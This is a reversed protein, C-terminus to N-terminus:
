EDPMIELEVGPQPSFRTTLLKRTDPNILYTFALPGLDGEVAHAMTGGVDELAGVTLIVEGVNDPAQAFFTPVRYVAGEVLPVSQAIEVIWAGDFVPADTLLTVATPDGQMPTVMGVVGEDMFELSAEAGGGESNHTLPVFATTAVLSDTQTMGQMPVSTTTVRVVRGNEVTIRETMTGVDQQMPATLRMTYTRTGPAIWDTVLSADGPAITVTDAPAGQAFAPAAALLAALFLTRMPM